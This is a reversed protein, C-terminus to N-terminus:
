LTKVMKNIMMMFASLPESIHKEKSWIMILKANLDTVSCNLAKILGKKIEDQIIMDPLFAIGSNLILLQKVAELSNIEIIKQPKINAQVLMKQIIKKYNCESKAFILTKNNLEKITLKKKQHLENQPHAALTLKIEALKRTHLNKDEFHDTILFALDITGSNFIDVLNFSTCWDIDFGIKPFILQFEKILMPLIYTSVTQPTKITLNGYKDDLNGLASRIEKEINILRQAYSLLKVGAPTLSIKKGSRLFLENGLSNELSRIQASVTSQALHLVDAARNFSLLSAVVQFTKLERFEM